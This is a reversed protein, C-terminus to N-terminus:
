LDIIIPPNIPKYRATCTSANVFKVGDSERRQAGYGEHIHGFVHVKLKLLEGIRVLLPYCGVRLNDQPVFDFIGLPPGHTILVEVADPIKARLEFMKEESANFSMCRFTPTWPSGYFLVGDIAIEEDELYIVGYKECIERSHQPEREFCYDHNGAILLKYKHPYSGLWQAVDDLQSLTGSATCDGAHILVDGDPLNPPLPGSRLRTESGTMMHRHRTHTDSICVLRM